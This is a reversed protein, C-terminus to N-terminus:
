APATFPGAGGRARAAGRRGRPRREMIRLLLAHPHRPNTPPDVSAFFVRKPPLGMRIAVATRDSVFGGTRNFPSRGIPSGPGIPLPRGTFFLFLVPPRHHAISWTSYLPTDLLWM